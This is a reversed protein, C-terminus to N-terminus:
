PKESRYGHFPGAVPCNGTHCCRQAACSFGLCQVWGFWCVLSLRLACYSGLDAKGGLGRYHSSCRSFELVPWLRKLFHKVFLGCSQLLTCKQASQGWCIMARRQRSGSDALWQNGGVAAVGAQNLSPVLGAPGRLVQWILGHVHGKGRQEWIKEKDPGVM